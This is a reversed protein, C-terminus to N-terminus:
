PKTPKPRTMTQPVIFQRDVPLQASCEFRVQLIQPGAQLKGTYLFRAPEGKGPRNLIQLRSVNEFVDDAAAGEQFGSHLLLARFENGGYARAAVGNAAPIGTLEFVMGEQSSLALNLENNVIELHPAGTAT